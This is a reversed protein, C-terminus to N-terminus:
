LIFFDPNSVWNRTFHRSLLRVGFNMRQFIKLRLPELKAIGVM